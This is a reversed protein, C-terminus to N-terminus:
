GIEFFIVTCPWGAGPNPVVEPGVSVQRFVRATFTFVRSFTM